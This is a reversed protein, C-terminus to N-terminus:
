INSEAYAVRFWEFDAYGNRRTQLAGSADRSRQSFCYLGISAGVWRSEKAEFDSGMLVYDEGNTGFGFACRAGKTVQMELYVTDSTLALEKITNGETGKDADKHIVYAISRRGNVQRIQLTAYDRGTAVIGTMDGDQLNNVNVKTVVEFEEAPFKQTIVQPVKWLNIDEVPLSKLRLCGPSEVLSFWEERYNAQWRWQLSPQPSDFEDSTQPSIIKNGTDLGGRSLKSDCAPYRFRRVPEGIGDGDYDVGIIPWGDDLWKMPNLHLVRGYAMRDQFHIFWHEGSELEVWAGQHPGNIDSAGQHMVIKADYPGFVHKSRLVTQWGSRVGGAPAFIYYYGNRKYMKPGEITPQTDTGDFIRTGEDLLRDGESSMRHMTLISNFGARSKAWAHVLYAKGDDDWFPCPDIMGTGEAVLAPPEWPGAPDKAKTMYIGFDPDGFFVHFSGDHYRISPAWIGNGHQPVDFFKEKRRDVINAIQRWHVLDHSQYIPLGPSYTFSSIVMYFDEGVGIVDPDPYDACYM